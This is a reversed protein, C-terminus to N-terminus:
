AIDDENPIQFVKDKYYIIKSPKETYTGAVIEAESEKQVLKFLSVIVKNADEQSKFSGGCIKDFYICYRLKGQQTEREIGIDTVNNLNIIGNCGQKMIFM